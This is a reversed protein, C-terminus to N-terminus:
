PKCSQFASLKQYPDGLPNQGFHDVQIPLFVGILPHISRYSSPPMIVYAALPTKTKSLPIAFSLDATTLDRLFEHLNGELLHILM